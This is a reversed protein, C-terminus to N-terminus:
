SPEGLTWLRVTGDMSGTALTHGDPSFAVSFVIETHGFLTATPQGTVPDWLRVTRDIGGSALVRGDPRFAVSVVYGGHPNMITTPQATALDWLRITTDCSGTALTRGDPSFAAAEIGLNHGALTTVQGTALDLLQLTGDMGPGCALIHGGPHFALARGAYCGQRSLLETAQGTALDWLRVTTTGGEQTSGHIPDPPQWESSAMTRGDPSFAVSEVKGACGTLATLHGTAIAWLTVEDPRAVALTGGDPSFAASVVGTEGSLVSTAQRAALDWLRATVDGGSALTHGDPGFAVCSVGGTHGILAVDTTLAAVPPSVRTTMRGAGSAAIPEEGSPSSRAARQGARRLAETYTIQERYVALGLLDRYFRRSRDQDGPRLLIRSSLVDM